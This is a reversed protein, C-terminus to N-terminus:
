RIGHVTWLYSWFHGYGPFLRSNEMKMGYMPMEFQANNGRGSFDIVPNGQYKVYPGLLNEAIALGYKRNGRIKPDTYHYYERSNWSKYYLWYRGDPHKLFSPNSTCFNDWADEEQSVELL